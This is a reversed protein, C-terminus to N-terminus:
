IRPLDPGFANLIAGSIAGIIIYILILAVVVVVTYAMAKEKPTEMVIPLGIYLLYLGYFGAILVLPSLAPIIYFIGAALFPTYMYVAVKMGKVDDRTSGFNSALYSVVKGLLWVGAVILFYSVISTILSEGLTLHHVGSFPIRIGIIWKGLFSALAPIAALILLYEKFLGTVTAEETSITEWTERPKLVIQKVREVIKQM